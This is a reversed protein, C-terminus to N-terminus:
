ECSFSVFVPRFPIDSSDYLSEEGGERRLRLLLRLLMVVRLNTTKEVPHDVEEAQEDLNDEVELEVVDVVDM